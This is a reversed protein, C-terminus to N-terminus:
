FFDAFLAFCQFFPVLNIRYPHILRDAKELRPSDIHAGLINMGESLPKEGIQFFCISKNMWVSYVKDGKKLTEGKKRIEELERYGAAEITNVISDICERETKGNDLFDMYERALTDVEKNQKKGYTEWVNKHEM